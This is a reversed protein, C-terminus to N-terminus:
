AGALRTAKIILLIVAIALYGYMLYMTLTRTRSWTPKGLLALPPMTWTERRASPEAATVPAARGRLSL